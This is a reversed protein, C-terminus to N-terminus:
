KIQIILYIMKKYKCYNYALICRHSKKLYEEKQEEDLKEWLKHGENIDHLSNEKAKEQLFIKFAGSPRKPKIGNILEYIDRLKDREENIDEAYKKYKKKELPKLEKWLKAAEEMKPIFNEKGQADEFYKQIFISFPSVKKISKAKEFWNDNIKKRELYIRKSEPDMGRWEMSAESKVVKPDRDKEFGELMKENLFIRYATPPRKVVGNIDKFLFHRVIEISKKFEKKENEYLENFKAKNEEDMKAWAEGCTKNFEIFNFKQKKAKIKEAESLCFQTYANRPPNLNINDLISEVKDDSYELVGGISTIKSTPEETLSSM